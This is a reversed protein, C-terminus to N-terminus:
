VSKRQTRSAYMESIFLFAPVDDVGAASAVEGAHALMANAYVPSIEIKKHRKRASAVQNEIKKAFERIWGLRDAVTVRSRRGKATKKTNKKM